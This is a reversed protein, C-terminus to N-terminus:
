QFLNLILDAKRRCDPILVSSFQAMNLMSIVITNLDKDSDLRSEKILPLCDFLIILYESLHVGSLCEFQKYVSQTAETKCGHVLLVSYYSSDIIFFLTDFTMMSQLYCDLAFSFLTLNQRYSTLLAAGIDRSHSGSFYDKIFGCNWTEPINQVLFQTLSYGLPHKVLHKICDFDKNAFSSLLRSVSQLSDHVIIPAHDYSVIKFTELINPLSSVLRMFSSYFPSIIDTKEISTLARQAQNSISNCLFQLVFLLFLSLDKKAFHSAPIYLHKLFSSLSQFDDVAPGTLDILVNSIFIQPFLCLYKTLTLYFLESFTTDDITSQHHSGFMILSKLLEKPLTFDFNVLLVMLPSIDGSSIM